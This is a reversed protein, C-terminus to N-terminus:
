QSYSLYKIKEDQHGNAPESQPFTPFLVMDAQRMALTDPNKNTPVIEVPNHPVTSYGQLSMSPGNASVEKHLLTKYEDVEEEKPKVAHAQEAEWQAKYLQAIGLMKVEIGGLWFNHARIADSFDRWAKAEGDIHTLARLFAEQYNRFEREVERMCRILFVLKRRNVEQDPIDARITTEDKKAEYYTKALSMAQLLEANTTM